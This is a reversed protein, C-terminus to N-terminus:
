DSIILRNFYVDEIKTSSLKSNLNSIIAKKVKYSRVDKEKQNMIAEITAHRLISGKSQLEDDIGFSSMGWGDPKDYKLSINTILKQGKGINIEFDGLNIIANDEIKVNTSYYRRKAIQEKLKSDMGDTRKKLNSFDSKVFAYIVLTILIGLLLLAVIINKMRQFM